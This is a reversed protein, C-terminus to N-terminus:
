WDFFYALGTGVEYKYTKDAAPQSLAAQYWVSVSLSRQRDIYLGALGKMLPIFTGSVFDWALRTDLALYTRGPLNAAFIPELILLNLEPYSTSAGLSRIWQVQATFSLWRALAVGIAYSPIVAWPGGIAPSSATQIQLGIAVFQRVGGGGLFNWAFAPTVAGLGFQSPAGAAYPYLASVPLKVQLAFQSREGFVFQPNFLMRGGNAKGGLSQFSDFQLLIQSRSFAVSDLGQLIQLSERIHEKSSMDEVTEVLSAAEMASQLGATSCEKSLRAENEQLCRLLPGVQQPVGKCLSEADSACARRVGNVRDRAESLRSMEAQCTPTLDLQHQALCGIVRGGGPDIAACFQNVDERCARGFAELIRRAALAEADLKQHCAPSLRPENAQLCSLLRGSGPKVDSCFQKADDGCPDGARQPDDVSALGIRPVALFLLIFLTRKAPMPIRGSM